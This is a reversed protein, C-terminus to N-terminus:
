ALDEATLAVLPTHYVPHSSVDVRVDYARQLLPPTLVRKSTCGGGATRGRVMLALRDAYLGALNLDHLAAIV